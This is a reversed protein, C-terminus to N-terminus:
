EDEKGRKEEEEGEQQIDEILKRAREVLNNWEEILKIRKTIDEGKNAVTVRQIIKNSLDKIGDAINKAENLNDQSLLLLKEIDTVVSKLENGIKSLEKQLEDRKQKGGGSIIKKGDERCSVFPELRSKLQDKAIQHQRKQAQEVLRSAKELEKIVTDQKDLRQKQLNIQMDVKNLKEKEIRVHENHEKSSRFFNWMNILGGIAIVLASVALLRLNWYPIVIFAFISIGVVGLLMVAGIITVYIEYKELIEKIEKLM